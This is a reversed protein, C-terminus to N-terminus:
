LAREKRYQTGEVVYVEDIEMYDTKRNGSTDYKKVHEMFQHIDKYEVGEPNLDLYHSAIALDLGLYESALAAEVPSMEGTLVKGPFGARELLVQAQTCGMLGITPQYLEKILRLDGFIATDGCHYIRVGKEPEVIYGMPVGTVYQGNKLRTISWHHSEVPRIIVGGTKVVIGWTTPHIQSSPVGEELLVAKVENGCVVPAGTRKAIAATDGMHDYAAHTVLIVNPTELQDPTIKAFPSESLFPDIIIRWDPGTIEYGAVGLFRIKTTM